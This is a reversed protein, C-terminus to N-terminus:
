IVSSHVTLKCIKDQISSTKILDNFYSISKGMSSDKFLIRPIQGTACGKMQVCVPIVKFIHDIYKNCKDITMSTCWFYEIIHQLESNTRPQEKNNMNMSPSWFMCTHM